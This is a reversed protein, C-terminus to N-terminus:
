LIGKEIMQPHNLITCYISHDKFASPKWFWVGLFSRSWLLSFTNTSECMHIDRTCSKVTNTQKANKNTIITTCSTKSHCKWIHMYHVGTQQTKDITRERGEGWKKFHSWCTEINWIWVHISFVDVMNVKKVRKIQGGVLATGKVNGTRNNNISTIQRNTPCALAMCTSYAVFTCLSSVPFLQLWHYLLSWLYSDWCCWKEPAVVRFCTKYDQMHDWHLFCVM